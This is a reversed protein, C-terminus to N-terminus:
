VRALLRARIENASPHVQKPPEPEGAIKAQLRSAADTLKTELGDRLNGLYDKYATVMGQIEVVRRVTKQQAEATGQNPDYAEIAKDYDEILSDVADRITEGASKNNAESPAIGWRTLKGGISVFLRDIQDVLHQYHAPVFYAGGQERIPFLDGYQSMKDFLKQVIRTVDSSNRQGMQRLVLNYATTRLNQDPCDVDGTAKNLKLMVEFNYSFMGSTKDLYEKTFQFWIHTSDEHAQKIIRSEDLDKVARSFAYRPLLEKAMDADMGAATMADRLQQFGVHPPSKWTVIEGIQTITSM